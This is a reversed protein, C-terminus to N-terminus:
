RDPGPPLCPSYGQERLQARVDRRVGSAFTNNLFRPLRKWEFDSVQTFLTGSPTPELRYEVGFVAADDEERMALRSPPDLTLHRVQLVM